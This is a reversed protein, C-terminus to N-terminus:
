TAHTLKVQSLIISCHCTSAHTLLVWNEIVTEGVQHQFNAFVSTSKNASCCFVVNHGLWDLFYYELVKSFISEMKDPWGRSTQGM